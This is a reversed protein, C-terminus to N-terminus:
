IDLSVFLLGKKEYKGHQEQLKYMHSSGLVLVNRNDAASCLSLTEISSMSVATESHLSLLTDFILFWLAFGLDGTPQNDVSQM